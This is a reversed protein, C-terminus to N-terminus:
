FHFYLRFCMVRGCPGCIPQRNLTNVLVSVINYYCPVTIHEHLHKWKFKTNVHGSIVGVVICCKMAAYIHAHNKIVLMSNNLDGHIYFCESKKRISIRHKKGWSLLMMNYHWFLIYIQRSKRDCLFSCFDRNWIEMRQPSIYSIVINLGNRIGLNKWLPFNVANLTIVACVTSSCSWLSIDKHYPNGTYSDKSHGGPARSM